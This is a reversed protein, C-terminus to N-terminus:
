EYIYDIQTTPDGNLYRIECIMRGQTDYSYISDTVANYSGDTYSESIKILQGYEDYNYDWRKNQNPYSRTSWILKGQVDYGYRYKRSSSDMSILLGQENYKLNFTEWGNDMVINKIRGQIDYNIDFELGIWGDVYRIMRGQADYTYTGDQSISIINGTNDYSYLDTGYEWRRNDNGIRWEVAKIPRSGTLMFEPYKCGAELFVLVETPTMGTVTNAATTNEVNISAAAQETGPAYPLRGENIGFTIYHQLLVNKDTGLSAAVDPNTQAYYEADFITGDPMTEPAAFATLSNGICIATILAVATKKKM